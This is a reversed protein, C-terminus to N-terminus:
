LGGPAPVAVGRRVLAPPDALESVGQIRAQHRWTRDAADAASVVASDHPELGLAGGLVAQRCRASGREVHETIMVAGRVCRLRLSAHPPDSGATPMRTTASSAGLHPLVSAASVVQLAWTTRSLKRRGMRRQLQRMNQRGPRELLRFSLSPSNNGQLRPSTRCRPMTTGSRAIFIMILGVECKVILDSECHGGQIALVVVTKASSLGIM